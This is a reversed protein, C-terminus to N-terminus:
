AALLDNVKMYYRSYIRSASELGRECIIEYVQGSHRNEYLQAGRRFDPRRKLYGNGEQEDIGHQLYNAIGGVKNVAGLFKKWESKRSVKKSTRREKNNIINSSHDNVTNEAQKAEYIAKEEPTIRKLEKMEGNSSRFVRIESSHAVRKVQVNAVDMTQSEVIVNGQAFIKMTKM